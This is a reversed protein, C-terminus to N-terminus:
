EKKTLSERFVKLALELERIRKDKGDSYGKKYGDQYGKSHELLHSGNTTLTLNEIRNDDKIGNKHHVLEWVQLCRGLHQAMVLRHEFVYGRSTMPYFFDDPQLKVKIYGQTKFRGGKWSRSNAGRQSLMMQSIAKRREPDLLAIRLRERNEPSKGECARCRQHDPQGHRFRVWREKGCEECASWLFRGTSKYGLQKGQKIEGIQPM